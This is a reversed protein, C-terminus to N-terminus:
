KWPGAQKEAWRMLREGVGKGRAEPVTAISYIRISRQYLFLIAAGLVAEEGSSTDSVALGVRQSDSRLSRM